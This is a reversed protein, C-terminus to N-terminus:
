SARVIRALRLLQSSLNLRGREAADPNIEFRVKDQQIYFNIMGGNQAFGKVESVTLISSGRLADLIQRMRDQESGSIFLV